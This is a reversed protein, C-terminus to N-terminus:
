FFGSRLTQQGTKVSGTQRSVFFTPEPVNEPTDRRVLQHGTCKLVLSGYRINVERASYRRISRSSLAFIRQSFDTTFQRQHIVFRQARKLSFSLIDLTLTLTHFRGPYGRRRFSCGFHISM